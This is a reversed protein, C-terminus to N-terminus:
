FFYYQRGRGELAAVIDRMCDHLAEQSPQRQGTMARTEDYIAIYQKAFIESMVGTQVRGKTREFANSATANQSQMSFMVATTSTNVSSSSILFYAHVPLYFPPRSLHASFSIRKLCVICSLHHHHHHPHHHFLVTRKVDYLVASHRYDGYSGPLSLTQDYFICIPSLRKIYVAFGSVLLM